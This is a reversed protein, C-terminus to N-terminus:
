KLLFARNIQKSMDSNVGNFSTDPATMSNVINTSKIHKKMNRMAEISQTLTEELQANVLELQSIEKNKEDVLNKLRRNSNKLTQVLDKDKKESEELEPDSENELSKKVHEESKEPYDEDKLYPKVKSLKDKVDAPKPAESNEVEKMKMDKKNSNIAYYPGAKGSECLALHNAHIIKEKFDYRVGEYFGKENEIMGKFGISLENTKKSLVDEIAEKDIITLKKAFLDNNKTYVQSLTGVVYQKFNDNDVKGNDPHDYVIPIGDFSSLLDSDEFEKPDRFVNVLENPQGSRDGIEQRTYRQIGTKAIPVDYAILFNNGDLEKKTHFQDKNIIFKNSKL